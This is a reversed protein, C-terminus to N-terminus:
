ATSLWRNIDSGCRTQKLFTSCNVLTRPVLRHTHTSIFIVVFLFVWAAAEDEEESNTKAKDPLCLRSHFTSRSYNIIWEWFKGLAAPAKDLAHGYVTLHTQLPWSLFRNTKLIERNFLYEPYRIILKKRRFDVSPHGPFKPSKRQKM